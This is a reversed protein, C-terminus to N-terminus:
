LSFGWRYFLKQVQLRKTTEGTRWTIWVSQQVAGDVPEIM